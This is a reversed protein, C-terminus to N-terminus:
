ELTKNLCNGHLLEISFGEVNKETLRQYFVQFKIMTLRILLTVPFHTVDLSVFESPVYLGAGQKKQILYIGWIRKM